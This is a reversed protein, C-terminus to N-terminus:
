TGALELNALPVDVFDGALVEVVACKVRLGNDLLLPNSPLEVVTGVTGRYPERTIRVRSDVEIPIAQTLDDVDGTVPRNIVLESRREAFRQPQAADLMGQGGNFQSLLHSVGSTMYMDGFGETLMIAFNANLAADLLSAPMSPAVLGSFGRITGIELVEPTIPRRRIVIENKYTTDLEELNISEVGGDEPEWRMVSIVNKDNGWVGQLIAGRAEITVGRGEIIQTIRGRVGADLRIIEPIQQIIIRGEDVAIMIGDIPAFVRKGRDASQGALPQGADVRDRLNVLLLDRVRDPRVDLEESANIVVHRAPILGRAVTDRVDVQANLEVQVNGIAVEPLMTQRRINALESILRQEPYYM